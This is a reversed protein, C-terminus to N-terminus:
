IHELWSGIMGAEEVKRFKPGFSGLQRFCRSSAKSVVFVSIIEYNDVWEESNKENQLWHTNKPTGVTKSM